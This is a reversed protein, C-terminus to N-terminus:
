AVQTLSRSPDDVAIISELRWKMDLNLIQPTSVYYFLACLFPPVIVLQIGAVKKLVQAMDFHRALRKAHM